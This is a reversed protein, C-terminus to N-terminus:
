NQAKYFKVYGGWGDRERQIESSEKEAVNEPEKIRIKQRQWLPRAEFMQLQIRVCVFSMAAEALCWGMVTGTLLRGPFYVRIQLIFWSWSWTFNQSLCIDKLCHNFLIYLFWYSRTIQLLFFPLLLHFFLIDIHFLHFRLYLFATTLHPAQTSIQDEIAWPSCTLTFDLLDVFFAVFFGVYFYFSVLADKTPGQISSIPSLMKTMVPDVGDQLGSFSIIKWTLCNVEVMLKTKVSSSNTVM